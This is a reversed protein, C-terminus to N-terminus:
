RKRRGMWHVVGLLLVCLPLVIMFLTGWMGASPVTNYTITLSKAPISIHNGETFGATAANIFIDANATNSYSSLLDGDTISAASLVTLRATKDGVSETAAAGLLYDGQIQSNDATVAYANESTTLFPTVTITDRAPATQLIGRANMLLVLDRDSLSSTVESEGSVVPYIAFPSNFQQYYRDMDAIYGDAMTLGYEGMLKEWNHLSTEDSSLIIFVQGGGALYSQILALEDDALDKEPCNALLLSCDEPIGGDKLLSLTGTKLNAKDMSSTLQAPLDLEGHDTTTYVMKDVEATVYTLASILQGEADFESEQLQGTYFYASMDITIIEDFAITEQKGTDACIVILHNAAVGYQAAAAPHAVPDVETIKVHSSLAAYRELFKLIRGDMANEEAVVVIEVDKDLASLFEVSTDSITYLNNSTIDFERLYSPLQGVILNLLVVIAVVVVTVGAWYGNKLLKSTHLIGKNRDM